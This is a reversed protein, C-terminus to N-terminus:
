LEQNPALIFEHQDILGKEERNKETTVNGANVLTNSNTVPKKVLFWYKVLVSMIRFGDRLPNLHSKSGVRLGYSVPVDATLIRNKALLSTMEAELGFGASDIGIQLFFNITSPRFLWYGTCVDSHNTGYLFNAIFTLFINGIYNFFSLSGKVRKGKIRSGIIVGYGGKSALTLLNNADKPDYTCDADMMIIADFASDKLFNFGTKVAYGKGQKKEQLLSVGCKSAVESTNDKSNNDVVLIFSEPCINKISTILQGLAQGENYAPLLFAVRKNNIEFSPFLELDKQHLRNTPYITHAFILSALILLAWALLTEIQASGSLSTLGIFQISFYTLGLSLLSFFFKGIYQLIIIKTNVKFQMLFTLLGVLVISDVFRYTLSINSLIWAFLGLFWLFLTTFFAIFKILAILIQLNSSMSVKFEQAM